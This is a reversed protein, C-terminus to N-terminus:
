PKYKDPIEFYIPRTILTSKNDIRRYYTRGLYKIEDPIFFYIPKIIGNNVPANTPIGQGNPIGLEKRINLEKIITEPTNKNKRYKRVQDNTVTGNRINDIRMELDNTLVVGNLINHNEEIENLDGNEKKKKNLYSKYEKDIVILVSSETIHYTNCYNKFWETNYKSELYFLNDVLKKITTIYKDGTAIWHVPANGITVTIDYKGKYGNILSIKNSNIIEKEINVNKDIANQLLYRLTYVSSKNTFARGMNPNIHMLMTETYIDEREIGTHLYEYEIQGYKKITNEIFFVNFDYLSRKKEKQVLFTHDTYIKDKVGLLNAEFKLVSEKCITMGMDYGM